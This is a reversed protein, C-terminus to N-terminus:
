AFGKLPDLPIPQAPARHQREPDARDIRPQRRCAQPEICQVLDGRGARAHAVIRGRRQEHGADSRAGPARHKPHHTSAVQERGPEILSPERGFSDEIGLRSVIGLQERQHLFSQAVAPQTRHDAFHLTRRHGIGAPQLERRLAALRDRQQEFTMCAFAAIREGHRRGRHRAPSDGGRGRSGERDFTDTARAPPDLQDTLAAAFGM